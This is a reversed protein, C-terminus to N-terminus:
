YDKKDDMYSKRSELSARFSFSSYMEEPSPKAEALEVM